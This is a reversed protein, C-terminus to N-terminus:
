THRIASIALSIRRYDGSNIKRPAGFGCHRRIKAETSCTWIPAYQIRVTPHEALCAECRMPGVEREEGAGARGQASTVTDNSQSLGGALHSTGKSTHSDQTTTAAQLCDTIPGCVLAMKLGCDRCIYLAEFGCESCVLESEDGGARLCCCLGLHLAYLVLLAEGDPFFRTMLKEPRM